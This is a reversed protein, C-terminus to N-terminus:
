KKPKPLQLRDYLHLSSPFARSPSMAIPASSLISISPSICPSLPSPYFHLQMCARSSLYGCCVLLCPLLYVLQPNYVPTRTLSFSLFLPLFLSLSLSLSLCVSLCVSLSCIELTHTPLMSVFLYHVCVFLM